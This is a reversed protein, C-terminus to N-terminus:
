NMFNEEAAEVKMAGGSDGNEDKGRKERISRWIKDRSGTIKRYREYDRGM